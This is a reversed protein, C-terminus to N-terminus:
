LSNYKRNSYTGLKISLMKILEDSEGFFSDDNILSILLQKEPKTNDKDGKNREATRKNYGL